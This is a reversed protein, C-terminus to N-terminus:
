DVDTSDDCRHAGGIELVKKSKKRQRRQSPVEVEADGSTPAPTPIDPTAPVSDPVNKRPRQRRRETRVSRPKSRAAIGASTDDSEPAYSVIIEEKRGWGRKLGHARQVDKNM